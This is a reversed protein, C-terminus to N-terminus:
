KRWTKIRVWWNGDTVVLRARPHHSSTGGSQLGGGLAGLAPGMGEALYLGSLLVVLVIGIVLLPDKIERVVEVRERMEGRLERIRVM